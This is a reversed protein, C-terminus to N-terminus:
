IIIIMMPMRITAPAMYLIVCAGFFGYRMRKKPEIQLVTELMKCLNASSGKTLPSDENFDM